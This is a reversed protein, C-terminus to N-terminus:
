LIVLKEIKEVTKNLSESRVKLKYVYVGKGIKDGFDDRGDWVIDRSLSSNGSSCCDATNTQGNLTRVLKGSVTFIQISVDLTGSSNHNFWFETYNVFPNPYNLVNTIVLSENENYVMFQIEATSSNNYVDWAKVTLTHLGTELDRFPYTAVGNQYDDVDTQYYDNLVYPNVEDGDIIAVLDHGIGSSTNIGNEDELKVLLSPSENTIGGSVFSEDNMYLNIVPGIDDEEADENIGGVQIVNVGAGAQDELTEDTKAYFSVRGAGVPVGIDKPVVFDFSFQGAVVSAQGRFIIEGLTTYDMIYVDDGVVTGDNGLTTRSIDKDYVTSSLIGNYDTLLNGATDTVEGSFSVKDLAKLQDIEGTISKGNVKTLKINPEPIALKMAPDGIFFVLHRQSSNSIASNTKTLRLAEAMSPYEDDSYSDETNYSFLYESLITNFSIGVSVFIERTTTLLGVAGGEANWYTVEGATERLPNDFRTFECTVTIFCNMKYENSLDAADTAMFIREAALGDEGGHGFYNVLLAGNQMANIMAEKVEPYRDGGSSSEQNYADSHIKTINIFPKQESIEDAIEDTTEELIYEWSDDVDDSVMVVTNRWSGYAGEQYYREIKDVMEKAQSVDDALVRGLALDLQDSTSMSGENADMMGYFDDSVYSSTLSFSNYEHWSPVYNSNTSLRGKYDYSSDGFMCLYKVAKDSTSANDYVYKVFNRIASIDQNGTSFENYIADLTAVKVNLGYQAKDIEALRVAQAYFSSPAVIIYDVDLFQGDDDLFVTGKLDQNEIRSNSAKTPSYYDSATVAVFTELRGSQRVFSLTSASESNSLSAVSFPDTVNWIESISAANALQYEVYGSRLAVETNYFGFQEGYFTLARTAEISIYDLYGLASPNSQKNYTLSVTIDDSSVAVSKNMSSENALTPDSAGNISLTGVSAGNIAVQFSSTSESTSAVYAKFTIEESTVLDPVEFSFSKQLTVDFRDGFWRRGVQALNYDDTEHFLYTQHTNVVYDATNSSSQFSQIRKGEVGDTKLFYSTKTTYSNINTNSEENYANPGIAYFLIYDDDDFSGDDEGIVKIANETVDFYQTESNEYPIMAGGNGYIKLQKPNISNVSVGLQQLFSKSLKYVGTTDVYFQFWEGSKLVSSSVSPTSSYELSSRSTASSNYVLNFSTIKKYSNKGDKIIPSVELFGYSKYRAISKHLEFQLANPITSVDLGKLETKSISTYTVNELRASSENFSSSLEWKSVFKLGDEVSYDFNDPNFSPVQVSFSGTSITTYGDWDLQFQKQQSYGVISVLMLLLVATKKM